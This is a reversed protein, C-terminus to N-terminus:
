LEKKTASLLAKRRRRCEGVVSVYCPKCLFGIGLYDNRNLPFETTPKWHDCNTCRRCLVDNILKASLRTNRMQQSQTAWRCNEKSYGKDNCIRDLSTKPLSKGMDAWFNEFSYWRKCVKIGRGGYNEYGKLKTNNCRKLMNQWADYEKRNARIGRRKGRM